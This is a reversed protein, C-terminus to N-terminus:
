VFFFSLIIKNFFEIRGIKIEFIKNKTNNGKTKGGMLKKSDKPDDVTLIFDFCMRELESCIVDDKSLSLLARDRQTLTLVTKCFVYEVILENRSQQALHPATGPPSGLPNASQVSFRRQVDDGARIIM